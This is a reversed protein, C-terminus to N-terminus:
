EEHSGGFTLARVVADLSDRFAPSPDHTQCWAAAREIELPEAELAILDQWHRGRTPWHDVAAYLKFCIMDFRGALWITLTGYRRSTLRSEFGSPLGLDMLSAPDLNLWGEDLGFASAVDTIARALPEPMADLKAVRGSALREGVIDGDKTPRAIVGQLALNAGGVLVLEYSHGRQELTEGLATLAEEIQSPAHHDLTSM